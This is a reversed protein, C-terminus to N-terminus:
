PTGADWGAAFGPFDCPGGCTNAIQATAFFQAIQQELAPIKASQTHAANDTGPTEDADSPLPTPHIDWTTLASPLRGPTPTMGYVSAVSPGLLPVGMTRALMETAINPVQADGVAMQVDLQKKPVGPLPNALVYPAVTAPDTYDLQMQALALLLQQDLHDPYSGDIVLESERWNTSRQFMTSWFGGPVHVVALTVDPDYGMFSTGMIGGLSGGYYTLKTADGAPAGGAKGTVTMAPDNVIRGRMTRVLVMANVLAQQLRDTLWPLRNFDALADAAAGSTGPKVPDEHASLGIWDTAFVVYGELNAFDQVYSGTADGLASEGTGFLGHGFMVLPLPSKQAAVAPIIITFPAEHTGNHKPQGSSDLLLQAEPKTEDGNDLFLPVTFTGRIRRLVEADLGDEVSTITYGIGTPGAVSLAQDRMTLVHDTLAEDSGTVFDWAVLIRDRPVGAKALASLIEPMRAAQAQALANSPPAGNAIADFLPPPAPTGGDVTRISRTVAVAYRRKPALRAAPRLIVAQRDSDRVANADVESAHAVLKGTQMDVIVTASAASLTASEDRWSVLSAPDIREPFYVVIPTAPSFGDAVNWRTPDLRTGAPDNVPLTGAPIALRLGTRTTADADLYIANPWPLMCAGSTRLPNCTAPLGDDLTAPASAGGHSSGCAAAPAVCAASLLLAVRTERRM